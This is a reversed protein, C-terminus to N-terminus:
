RQSAGLHLWRCWLAGLLVIVWALYVWLFFIPITALAGYIARYNSFYNLYLSFAYKAGEFLLMTMGGSFAAYRLRVTCSPLLWNFATFTLFASAYPLLLLVPQRFFNGGPVYAIMPLSALYSSVFMLVGFIIPMLLLVLFYILFSFALHRRLHVGWITNFASVMNYVMLASTFVLALTHMWSLSQMQALFHDLYVTIQGASSAVFNQLVFARFTSGMGHFQPFYALVTVSVLLLPVLSLLTSYALSAAMTTCGREFFADFLFSVSPYKESFRRAPM